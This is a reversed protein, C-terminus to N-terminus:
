FFFVFPIATNSEVNNFLHFGQLHMYTHSHFKNEKEQLRQWVFSYQELLLAELKAINAWTIDGIATPAATSNSGEWYGRINQQQTVSTLLPAPQCSLMQCPLAYSALTHWQIEGHQFFNCGNCENISASCKHLGFLPYLLLSTTPPANWCYCCQSNTVKVPAAKQLCLMCVRIIMPSFAYSVTTAINFINNQRQSDTRDFLVTTSKTDTATEM